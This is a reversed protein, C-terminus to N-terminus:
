EGDNLTLSTYNEGNSRLELEFSELDTAKITIVGNTVKDTPSDSGVSKVVETCNVIPEQYLRGDKAFVKRHVTLM